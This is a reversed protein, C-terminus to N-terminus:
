TGERTYDVLLAIDPFRERKNAAISAEARQERWVAARLDPRREFAWKVLDERTLSAFTPARRRLIDADVEFDTFPTRGGLLFVLTAEAGRVAEATADVVQDAQLKATEAKAWDAESVAGARYRLGVLDATQSASEAARRVLETSAQALATELYQQKLAFELTRAADDRAMKAAELAATAVDIRLR